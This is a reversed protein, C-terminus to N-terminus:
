LFWAHLQLSQVHDHLVVEAETEQSFVPSSLRFVRHCRLELTTTVLSGPTKFAILMGVGKFSAIKPLLHVLLPRPPFLTFLTGSMGISLPLM